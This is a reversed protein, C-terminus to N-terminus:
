KQLATSNVVTMIRRNDTNETCTVHDAVATTNSSVNIVDM